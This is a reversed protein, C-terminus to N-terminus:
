TSANARTSVSPQVPVPVPVATRDVGDTSLVYGGFAVSGRAVDRGEPVRARAPVPAPAPATARRDFRNVLLHPRRDLPQQCRFRCTACAGTRARRRQITRATWIVVGAAAAAAGIVLVPGAVVGAIALFHIIAKHWVLYASCGIIALTGTGPVYCVM